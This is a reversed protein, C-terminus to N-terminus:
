RRRPFRKRITGYLLALAEWAGAWVGAVWCTDSWSLAAWSDGVRGPDAM